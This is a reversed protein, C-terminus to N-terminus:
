NKNLRYFSITLKKMITTVITTIATGSPRGKAPILM